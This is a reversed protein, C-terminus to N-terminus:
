TRCDLFVSVAVVVAVGPCCGPLELGTRSASLHILLGNPSVRTICCARLFGFLGLYRSGSCFKWQSFVGVFVRM